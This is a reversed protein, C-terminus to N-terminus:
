MEGVRALMEDTTKSSTLGQERMRLIVATYVHKKQDTTLTPNVYSKPLERKMTRVDKLRGAYCLKCYPRYGDQSDKRIPFEDLPKDEGCTRCTKM